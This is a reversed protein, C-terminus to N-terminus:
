TFEIPVSMCRNWNLLELKRQNIERANFFFDWIKHQNFVCKASQIELRAMPAISNGGGMNKMM